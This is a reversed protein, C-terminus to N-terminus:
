HYKTALLGAVKKKVAREEQKGVDGRNMEVEQWIEDTNHVAVARGGRRLAGPAGRLALDAEWTMIPRLKLEEVAGGIGCIIVGVVVRFCRIVDM